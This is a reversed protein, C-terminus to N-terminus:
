PQTTILKGKKHDIASNEMLNNNVPIPKSEDTQDDIEVSVNEFLNGTVLTNGGTVTLRIRETEDSTHVCNGTVVAGTGRVDMARTCHGGPQVTLVNNAIVHRRSAAWSRFGIDLDGGEVVNVINDAMIMNDARDSGIAVHTRGSIEVYNGRIQGPGTLIEVSDSGANGLFNDLVRMNIGELMIGLRHSNLVHTNQILIDHNTEGGPGGPTTYFAKIGCFEFRDHSVNPDGTGAANHDHNANVYLDRITINGVGSGIIRIVNTNQDPALVLKTATGQGALVVNSRDITVGGLTGEVKRIDYTGEMLLVTGGPEPLARVAATIEDQDGTGDGVFDAVAKSRASSDHTAVTITAPAPAGNLPESESAALAISVFLLANM